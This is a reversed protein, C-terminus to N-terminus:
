PLFRADQGPSCVSYRRVSSFIGNYTTYHEGFDCVSGMLDAGLAMSSPGRQM